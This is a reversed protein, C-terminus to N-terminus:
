ASLAQGTTPCFAPHVIKNEKRVEDARGADGYLRHAVVLTPLPEFFIYNLMQPLPLATTVLHNSIAAHLGVLARFAASDMADAAIEEAEAFPGSLASKLVDVDQRSVFQIDAIIRGATALCLQINSDRVLKGGLLKPTETALQRRVAEISTLTCGAKFTKDYADLLADGIEDNMLMHLANVRAYNIATRADAGSRGYSAVATLLADMTREVIGAGEVADRRKM